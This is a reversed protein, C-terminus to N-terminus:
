NDKVKALQLAAQIIEEHTNPLLAFAGGVAVASPQAIYYHEYGNAHAGSPQPYFGIKTTKVYYVPATIKSATYVNNERKKIEEYSLNTAEYLTGVGTTSYAARYTQLFDAAPFVYEQETAGITTTNLTDLKILPELDKPISYPNLKREEKMLSILQQIVMNQGSDLLEYLQTDNWFGGTGATENILIRLRILSEAPSM